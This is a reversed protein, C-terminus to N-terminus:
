MRSSLAFTGREGDSSKQHTGLGFGPVCPVESAANDNSFGFSLQENKFAPNAFLRYEWVRGRGSVRRREYVWATDAPKDAHLERAFDRLRSGVSSPYKIRTELCLSELTRFRGDRMAEFVKLQLGNLEKKDQSTLVTNM